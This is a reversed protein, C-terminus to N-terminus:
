STQFPFSLFNMNRILVYVISMYSNIPTESAVPSGNVLVFVLSSKVLCTIERCCDICFYLKKALSGFINSLFIGHFSYNKRNFHLFERKCKREKALFLVFVYFPSVLINACASHPCPCRSKNPSSLHASFQACFFYFTLAACFADSCPSVSPFLSVLLAQVLLSSYLLRVFVCPCPAAFRLFPALLITFSLRGFTFLPLTASAAAIYFFCYHGFSM